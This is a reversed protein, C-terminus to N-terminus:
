IEFWGVVTGDNVGMLTIANFHKSGAGAADYVYNSGSTQTAPAGNVISTHTPYILQTNASAGGTNITITGTVSYVTRKFTVIHTEASIPLTPLTIILNTAAADTLLYSRSIPFTVTLGPSAGTSVIFSNTLYKVFATSNLSVDGSVAMGGSVDLNRAPGKTNIGVFGQGADPYLSITDKITNLSPDNEIGLILVGKELVGVNGNGGNEEYQIYAYDNASNKSKFMISSVGSADAHEFILSGATASARTGVSEFIRMNGCVDLKYPTNATGAGIGVNGTIFLKSGLSVDSGVLLKNTVTTLNGFTAPGNVNLSGNIDVVNNFTSTAAVSFSSSSGNFHIDGNSVTLSGWKMLLDYDIQAGSEGVVYLGQNMSVDNNFTTTSSFYNQGSWTNNTGLIPSSSASVALDVYQKTVLQTNGTPAAVGNYVPLNNTFFVNGGVSLNANFSADGVVHLKSGLSVDSVVFLKQSVNVNGHVDLDYDPDLKGIAVRGSKSIVSSVTNGNTGIDIGGTTKNYSLSSVNGQDVFYITKLNVYMSQFPKEVSGLSFTNAVSPVINGNVIISGGVYLGGNFSSDSAVSLGANLSVDGASVVAGTFSPSALPAKLGLASTLGTNVISGGVFLNANFSSDSAVSLRANLSVDGASVM